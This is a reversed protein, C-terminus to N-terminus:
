RRPILRRKIRGAFARVSRKLQTTPGLHRKLALDGFTDTHDILEYGPVQGSGCNVNSILFQEHPLAHIPCRLGEAFHAAFPSVLTPEFRPVHQWISPCFDDGGMLGGQRVKPLYAVMDIAIGRLTHDGDIYVLDIEGDPIEDIIETTTGRLVVRRDAAFETKEMSDKYYGEFVDNEVNAPKNWNELNRWPDVMYYKEIGKCGSLVAEAFDGRFVGVEVISRINFSNIIDIWLSTRRDTSKVASTILERSNTEM